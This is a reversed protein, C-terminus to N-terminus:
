SGWGIDGGVDEVVEAGSFEVKEECFYYGDVASKAKLMASLEVARIVHTGFHADAFPAWVERPIKKEESKGKRKEKSRGAEEDTEDSGEGGGEGAVGGNQRVRASGDRGEKEGAGGKRWKIKMLTAHPVYVDPNMASGKQKNPKRKFDNRPAPTSSNSHSATDSVHIGTADSVRLRKEDHEDSPTAPQTSANSPTPSPLTAPLSTQPPPPIYTETVTISTTLDVDLRSIKDVEMPIVRTITTTTIETVEEIETVDVTEQNGDLSQKKANEEEQLFDKFPEELAKKFAQLKHYEADQVPKAYAVRSGFTSLSQTRM